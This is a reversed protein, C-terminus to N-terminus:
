KRIKNFVLSILFVSLVIFDFPKNSLHKFASSMSYTVILSLPYGGSHSIVILYKINCLVYM